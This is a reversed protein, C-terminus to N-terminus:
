RLISRSLVVRHARASGGSAVPDAAKLAAPVTFATM